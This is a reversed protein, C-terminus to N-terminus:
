LLVKEGSKYEGYSSFNLARGELWKIASTYDDLSSWELDVHFAYHYPRGLIPLSHIKTMNIEYADFIALVKALSGPDHKVEFRISSKNASEVQKFDEKRCLVLFRTFNASDTEINKKLVKLGYEDGALVSAVAATHVEGNVVIDKASQATDDSEVLQVNPLSRLYKQCQLLAMPHSKVVKINQIDSHKHGLLAMEIKVFVEGVIKFDHNEMLGYNSLISGAIANEVAMVAFDLDKSKLGDLLDPFSLHEILELDPAKSFYKRAALDHFSAKVGQIGVKM